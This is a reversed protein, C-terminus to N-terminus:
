FQAVVIMHFFTIVVDISLNSVLIYIKFMFLGWDLAVLKVDSINVLHKPYVGWPTSVAWVSALTALKRIWRKGVLSQM